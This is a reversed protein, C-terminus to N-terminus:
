NKWKLKVPDKEQKFYLWAYGDKHKYDVLRCEPNTIYQQCKELDDRSAEYEFSHGEKVAPLVFTKGNSSFKAYNNDVKIKTGEVQYNCLTKIMEMFVRADVGYKIQNM